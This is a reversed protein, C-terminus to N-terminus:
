RPLASKPSASKPSASKPSASKPYHSRLLHEEHNITAPFDLRSYPSPFSAQKSDPSLIKRDFAKKTLRSFKNKDLDRHKLKFYDNFNYLSDEFEESFNVIDPHLRITEYEENYIRAEQKSALEFINQNRSLLNWLIKDQNNKLLEMVDVNPNNMLYPWVIKNQNKKILKFANPHPCSSLFRWIHLGSDNFSKNLESEYHQYEECFKAYPIFDRIKTNIFDINKLIKHLVLEYCLINYGKTYSTIYQNDKEFRELFIHYDTEYILKLFHNQYIQLETLSDYYETQNLLSASLIENWTVLKKDLLSIIISFVKPNENRLLNNLFETPNDEFVDYIIINLLMISKDNGNICLHQIFENRSEFKSILVKLRKEDINIHNKNGRALSVYDLMYKNEVVAGYLNFYSSKYNNKILVKLFASINKYNNYFTFDNRVEILERILHELYNENFNYYTNMLMVFYRDICKEFFNMSHVNSYRYCDALYAIKKCLTEDNFKFVNDIIIKHLINIADQNGSKFLDYLNLNLDSDFDVNDIYVRKFKPNYYTSLELARRDPNALISNFTIKDTHLTLYDIAEPFENITYWDLNDPNIWDRLKYIANPGSAGRIKKSTTTTIEKTVTIQGDKRKAVYTNKDNITFRINKIRNNNLSAYLDNAVSKVPKKSNVKFHKIM